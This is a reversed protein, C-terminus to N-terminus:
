SGPKRAVGVWFSVEEDTVDGTDTGTDPAALEPHWRHPVEIGPEVLELGTFFREVEAKTRIKGQIGGSHYIQVTRQTAEPDFDPTIHSLVLYSGPALPELLRQVIAYPDWEDPVFHLLACLSLAVPQSLDLVETLEPANLITDPEAVNADVYATRGQPVSSLLTQAHALVIPDNDAYVIRAEPAISQAVEHLNPSTPIGTGIDLFQRIGREAALYRIARHMFARNTRAAIMVGPWMTLVKAAAQRDAVYNDKGGLFYDYMRASHPKGQNLPSSPPEPGSGTQAAVGQATM